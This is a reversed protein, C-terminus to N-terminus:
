EFRNHRFITQVSRSPLEHSVEHGCSHLSDALVSVDLYKKRIIMLVPYTIISVTIAGHTIALAIGLKLIYLSIKAINRERGIIIWNKTGFSCGCIKWTNSQCIGASRFSNSYRNSPTNFYVLMAQRSLYSKTISFNDLLMPNVRMSIKIAITMMLMADRPSALKLTVMIRSFEVSLFVVIAM